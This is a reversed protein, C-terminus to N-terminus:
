LIRYPIPFIGASHGTQIDPNGSKQKQVSTVTPQQTIVKKTQQPQLRRQRASRM